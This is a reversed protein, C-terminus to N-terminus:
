RTLTIRHLPHDIAGLHYKYEHQGQLLDLVTLKRAIADQIVLAFLSIGPSLSAFAPDYAGCWLMERTRQPMAILSSAVQGNVLLQYVRLRHEEALKASCAKFHDSYVWKAKRGKGGGGLRMLDLTKAVAEDIDDPSDVIRLTAGGQETARRLKRRLEKRDRAKLTALQEDWSSRLHIQASIDCPQQALTFGAARAARCLVRPDASENSLAPLTIGISEGDRYDRLATLVADWFPERFEPNVPPDLYDSLMGDPITFSGHWHQELPLAGILRSRDYVQVFRLRSMRESYNLLPRLWHLSQFASAEPIASLLKTFDQEFAKEPPVCPLIQVRLSNVKQDWFPRTRGRVLRPLRPLLIQM